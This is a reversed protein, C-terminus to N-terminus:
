PKAGQASPKVETKVKKPNEMKIAVSVEPSAQGYSVVTVSSVVTIEDPYKSLDINNKEMERLFASPEFTYDVSWTNAGTKVPRGRFFSNVSIVYGKGKTDATGAGQEPMLKGVPEVFFIFPDEKSDNKNPDMVAVRLSVPKDAKYTTKSDIGSIGTIKPEAEQRQVAITIPLSLDKNELIKKTKIDSTSATLVIKADFSISSKVLPPTWSLVWGSGSPVLQIGKNQWEAPLELKATSTVKEVLMRFSLNYSKAVGQTFNFVMKKDGNNVDVEFLDGLYAQTRPKQNNLPVAEDLNSYGKMPNSERGQCGILTLAAVAALITKSFISKEM